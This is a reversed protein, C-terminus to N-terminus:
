NIMHHTPCPKTQDPNIFTCVCGVKPICESYVLDNYHFFECAKLCAKPNACYQDRSLVVSCTVTGGETLNNGFGMFLILLFVLFHFYIKMDM